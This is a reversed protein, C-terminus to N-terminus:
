GYTQSKWAQGAEMAAKKTRHFDRGLYMAGNAATYAWRYLGDGTKVVDMVGDDAM